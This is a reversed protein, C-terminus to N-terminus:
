FEDFNGETRNYFFQPKGHNIADVESITTMPLEQFNFNGKGSFFDDPSHIMSNKSMWHIVVSYRSAQKNTRARGGHVLQPHWIILDGKDAHFEKITLKRKICEKKLMSQYENSNRAKKRLKSDMLIRHSKEYLILPGQTKDIKELAFWTGVYRGLPNTFFAPTDRHFDQESGKEFFLSGFIAPDNDFYLSLIEYLQPNKFLKPLTKSQLHFSALRDHLGYQDSYKDADPNTAIYEKFENIVSDCDKESILKNIICYGNNILSLLAEKIGKHTDVSDMHDMAQITDIWLPQEILEVMSDNKKNTM